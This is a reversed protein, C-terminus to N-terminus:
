WIKNLISLCYDCGHYIWEQLGVFPNQLILYVGILPNNDWLHDAPVQRLSVLGSMNEQSQIMEKWVLGFQRQVFGNARYMAEIRIIGAEQRLEALIDELNSSQCVFNDM